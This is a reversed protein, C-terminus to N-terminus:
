PFTEVQTVPISIIPKGMKSSAKERLKIPDMIEEGQPNRWVQGGTDDNIEVVSYPAGHTFNNLLNLALDATFELCEEASNATIYEGNLPNLIKYVITM